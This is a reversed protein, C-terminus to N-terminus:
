QTKGKTSSKANSALYGPIGTVLQLDKLGGSTEAKRASPAAFSFDGQTVLYQTSWPCDTWQQGWPVTSVHSPVTNVM